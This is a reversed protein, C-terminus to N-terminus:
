YEGGLLCRDVPLRVGFGVDEFAYKFQRIYAARDTTALAFDIIPVHDFDVQRPISSSQAADARALAGRLHAAFSPVHASSLMTYHEGEVDVMEFREGSFDKWQSLRDRKYEERTGMSPLPVACFVTTLAGKVCGKPEFNRGAHNMNYGVQIWTLLADMRLDLEAIRTKDSRELIWGVVEASNPPAHDQGAVHSFAELLQKRLVEMAHSSYLSMFMGINLLIELWSLEKMRFQIHPPLNLIGLFAVHKGEAEFAKGLEFAIAAGFSYGAIYYPGNPFREEIATKYAAAVEQVSDFKPDDLDFGPARLAYVPRDDDLVRALGIFVLVEGLGPHVLFLPPKTGANNLCVLPQYRSAQIDTRSMLESIYTCLEGIQPRKLLELAHLNQLGFQDQLIQKLRMLHMSSAGMDFINQSRRLASPDISFVDSLIKGVQQELPTRLGDDEEERNDEDHNLLRELDSFNGRLYSTTLQSPSIKGLASKVFSARPLPLIVHPIHSCFVACANKIARNANKIALRQEHNVGDEVRIAHQYFVAYTETAANELRMPCVYVFGPMVGDIKSDEIYQQVDLPLIKIGNINLRDNDRGVLHLDGDGDVKALDGTIFWGDATFSNRTATENGYYGTFVTPGKLQLQGEHGDSVVAQTNPDVVRLSVGSCCRGVSLYKAPGDIVAQPQPKTDYICGAATESMGFGARLVDRRAGFRELLNAFSVATSLPVAEGGSILVGLQSLDISPLPTTVTNRLIQALLFNPSFTYTIRLKHAWILLNHPNGVISGPHAHFQSSLADTM